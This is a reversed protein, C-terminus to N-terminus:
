RTATPAGARGFPRRLISTSARASRRRPALRTRSRVCWPEFFKVFLPFPRDTRDPDMLARLKDESEFPVVDSPSGVLGRLHLYRLLPAVELPMTYEEIGDERTRVFVHMGGLLRLEEALKRNTAANVDCSFFAFGNIRLEATELVKVAAVVEEETSVSSDYFLSVQARARTCVRPRLPSLSVHHLAIIGM